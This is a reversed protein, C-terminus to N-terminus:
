TPARECHAKRSPRRHPSERDHRRRATEDEAMENRVRPDPVFFFRVLRDTRRRARTHRSYHHAAGSGSSVSEDKQSTALIPYGGDATQIVRKVEQISGRSLPRDWVLTVAADFRLAHYGTYTNRGLFVESDYGSVGKGVPVGASIYGGDSKGNFVRSANLSLEVIVQGAPQLLTSTDGFAPRPVTSCETSAIVEVGDSMARMKGSGHHEVQGFTVLGGAVGDRDIQLIVLDVTYDRGTDPGPGALLLTGDVPDEFASWVSTIGMGYTRQWM